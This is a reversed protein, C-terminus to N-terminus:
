LGRGEPVGDTPSCGRPPHSAETHLDKEPEQQSQGEGHLEGPEPSVLAVEVEPDEQYRCQRRCLQRARDGAV